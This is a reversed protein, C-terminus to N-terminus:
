TVTFMKNIKRNNIDVKIGIHDVFVYEVLSIYPLNRGFGVDYVAHIDSGFGIYEAITWLLYVLDEGCIMFKPGFNGNGFIM